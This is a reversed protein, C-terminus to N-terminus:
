MSITQTTVTFTPSGFEIPDANATITYKYSKGIEWRETHNKLLIEIKQSGFGDTVIFELVVDVGSDLTEGITPFIGDLYQPIIYMDGSTWTNLKQTPQTETLLSYDRLTERALEPMWGPTNGSYFTGQNVLGKLTVSKLNYINHSDAFTFSVKSLTHKFIVPIADARKGLTTGAAVDKVDFWLLDVMASPNQTFGIQFYPNNGSKNPVLDVSTVTSNSVSQHPCYGAFMLSGNSPWYYAQDKGAWSVEKYSFAVNDMYISSSGWAEPTNWVTGGACDSIYSYVGFVKDTGLLNEDAKTELCVVAIEQQEGDGVKEIKLCSSLCVAIVLLSSMTKLIEHRRKIMM